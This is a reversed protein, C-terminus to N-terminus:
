ATPRHLPGVRAVDGHPHRRLRGEFTDGPGVTQIRGDFGLRFPAADGSPVKLRLRQGEVRVEIRWHGRYRITTELADLEDPLRPNLWLADDRIELGLYCRQVLDVTGAMAGLHIGESTTGGQADAVDAGLAEVFLPWSGPRDGRALVWSHVLRSLTSGHSTRRAYYAINDPITRYEFRYGLRAFLEALQDASLLYFLMLVDAQKSAKYRNPTDGEAELIRDLRQIDGYRARYAEWDLEDLSEYGEFQSIIGDEHFPVFLRRSIRQWRRLEAETLGLQQRLAHRRAAPLRDLVDLARCLVWAAMVNTYANNDVGPGRGDPYGDHYEDPGMVGRIVYRDRSADYQAISAWFRAVELILEAGFRSLVDVDGTTQFQQWAGYAVALGVHRQRHSRDPTWRGSRPNLHWTQSEERGDSGSQWPFMAGAHGAELAARRAEPLRRHRYRLLTSAVHPMNFNLTPLVFLEDWFVHGRYAEGHLGRAPVGADLDGTHESVAQLLHVVHLNLRLDVDVHRELRLHWDRWLDRWRESHARLLRAFTGATAVARRAALRPESIGVDRSTYLAVTKEVVLTAGRRLECVIEETVHARGPVLRRFREISGRGEGLRTRAAVAITIESQTTRACLEIGDDAWRGTRIAGLHRNGLGRYRRVGGNAVGGDLGSRVDVTGSWDVAEIVTELAALHPEDMSTFRRQVIVTRRRSRDRVAIRRTLVGNRLDLQQRYREVEVDALRFWPGGDVRFTLPLWNPLNVLSEHELARGEVTSTLRNFIGAAYTGPYHVADAVAEPAAGRTAFYGNGTTCLTERLGEQSPDFDDWGLVWEDARDRM